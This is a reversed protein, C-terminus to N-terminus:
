EEFWVNVLYNVVTQGSLWTIRVEWFDSVVMEPERGLPFQLVLGSTPPVLYSQQVTPSAGDTTDNIRATTQANGRAQVKTAAPATGGSSVGTAKVLEVLVPVASAVVGDFTIDIQVIKNAVQAGTALQVAVKATGAAAGATKGSSVSYLQAM